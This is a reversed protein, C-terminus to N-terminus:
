APRPPAGGAASRELVCLEDGDRSLEGKEVLADIARDTAQRLAGASSTSFIAAMALATKFRAKSVIKGRGLPSGDPATKGEIEALLRLIGGLVADKPIGKNAKPEGKAQETEGVAEQVKAVCTTIKNGDRDVGLPVNVLDYRLRAKDEGDKMKEVSLQRAGADDPRSVLWEADAAGHLASSGRMGKTEDKGTHHVPMVVCNFHRGIREANKVFAMVDQSSSENMDDVSRSLTDIVVLAPQWGLRSTQAEIEEILDTTDGGRSLNPPTTVLAFHVDGPDGIETRAAVVRKRFGRGGEAAVYVVGGKRVHRGGWAKGAAVHLAASLALFSKGSGPAGYLVHLGTSPMLGNILWQPDLDLEIADLTELAFRPELASAKVADRIMQPDFSVPAGVGEVEEATLFKSAGVDVHAIHENM